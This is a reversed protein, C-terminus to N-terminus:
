GFRFRVRVKRTEDRERRVAPDRNAKEEKASSRLVWKLKLAVSM